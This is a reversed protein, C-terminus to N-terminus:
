PNWTPQDAPDTNIKLLAAPPSSIWLASISKRPWMVSSTKKWSTSKTTLWHVLWLKELLFQKDEHSFQRNVFTTIQNLYEEESATEGVELLRDIVGDPVGFTNSLIERIMKLEEPHEDLDAKSCAILISAATYRFEIGDRNLQGSSRPKIYIKFFQEFDM